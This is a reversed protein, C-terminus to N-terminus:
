WAAPPHWGPAPEEDAGVAFGWVFAVLFAVTAGLAWRKREQAKM